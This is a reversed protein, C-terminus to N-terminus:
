KDKGYPYLLSYHALEMSTKPATARLTTFTFYRLVRSETGFTRVAYCASPILCSLAEEM